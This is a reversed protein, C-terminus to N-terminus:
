RSSHGQLWLKAGALPSTAPNSLAILDSLTLNHGGINITGGQRLSDAFNTVERTAQKTSLALNTMALASDATTGSLREMVGALRNLNEEEINGVSGAIFGTRNVMSGEPKLIDQEGLAADAAMADGLPNGSGFLLMSAEPSIGAAGASRYLHTRAIGRARPNQSLAYAIQTGAMKGWRRQMTKVQTPSFTENAVRLGEANLNGSSDMFQNMMLVRQTDGQADAGLSEMATRTGGRKLEDPLSSRIRDEMSLLSLQADRTLVNTGQMGWHSLETMRQLSEATSLGQEAGKRTWGEILGLYRTVQDRGDPGNLSLTGSRVGAGLLSGMQSSSAGIQMGSSVAENLLTAVDWGGVRSRLGNLGVNAGQAVEQVGQTYIDRRSQWHNGGWTGERWDQLGFGRGFTTDAIAAQADHMRDKAISNQWMMMGAFAAVPVAVKAAGIMGASAYSGAAGASALGTESGLALGPAFGETGSMASMLWGPAKVGAGAGGMLMSMLSNKTTGLPNQLLGQLLYPNVYGPRDEDPGEGGGDPIEGAARRRRRGGRGGLSGEAEEFVKILREMSEALKDSPSLPGVVSTTSVISRETAERAERETRDMSAEVGAMGGPSSTEPVLKVNATLQAQSLISQFEALAERLRDGLNLPQSVGM